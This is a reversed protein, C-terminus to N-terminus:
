VNFSTNITIDIHIYAIKSKLIYMMGQTNAYYQASHIMWYMEAIKKTLENMWLSAVKCQFIRWCKPAWHRWMAAFIQTLTPEPLPKHGAPVYRYGIDFNEFAIHPMWMLAIEYSSNMFKTRIINESIASQVDNVCRGPFLSNVRQPRTVVYPSMSNPWCQNRYHSTAQWCSTM